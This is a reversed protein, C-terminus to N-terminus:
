IKFALLTDIKYIMNNWFTMKIKKEKINNKFCRKGFYSVKILKM